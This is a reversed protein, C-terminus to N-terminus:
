NYLLLIFFINSLNITGIYNKQGIAKILKIKTNKKGIFGFTSSSLLYLIFDDFISKFSVSIIFIKNFSFILSSHKLKISSIFSSFFKFNVFLNFKVILIVIIINNPNVM